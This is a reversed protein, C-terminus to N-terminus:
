SLFECRALSAEAACLRRLTAIVSSTYDFVRSILEVSLSRLGEPLPMLGFPRIGRKQELLCTHSNLDLHSISRPSKVSTSQSATLRLPARFNGGFLNQLHGEPLAMKHSRSIGFQTLHKLKGRETRDIVCEFTERSDTDVSIAPTVPRTDFESGRRGINAHLM